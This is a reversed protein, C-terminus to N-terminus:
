APPPPLPDVAPFQVSLAEVDRVIVENDTLLQDLISEMETLQELSLDAPQPNNM